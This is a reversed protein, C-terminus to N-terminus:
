RLYASARTRIKIPDFINIDSKSPISFNGGIIEKDIVNPNNIEPQIYENYLDLGITALLILM